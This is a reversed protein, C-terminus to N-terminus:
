SKAGLRGCFELLGVIAATMAALGLLFLMDM